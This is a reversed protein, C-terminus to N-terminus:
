CDDSSAILSYCNEYDKSITCINSSAMNKITTFIRDGCYDCQRKNCNDCPVNETDGLGVLLLTTPM